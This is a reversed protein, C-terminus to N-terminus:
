EQIIKDKMEIKDKIDLLCFVFAKRPVQGRLLDPVHVYIYKDNVWVCM